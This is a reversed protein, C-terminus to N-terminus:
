PAAGNHRAGGQAVGTDARFLLRLGLEAGVQAEELVTQAQRDSKILLVNGVQQEVAVQRRGASSGADNFVNTRHGIPPQLEHQVGVRDAGFGEVPVHRHGKVGKFIFHIIDAAASCADSQPAAATGLASNVAM